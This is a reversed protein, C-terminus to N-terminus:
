NICGSSTDSIDVPVCYSSKMQGADTYQLCGIYDEYLSVETPINFEWVPLMPVM